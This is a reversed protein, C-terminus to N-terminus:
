IQLVRVGSLNQLGVSVSGGNLDSRKQGVAIEFLSSWRFDARSKCDLFKSKDRIKQNQWNAQQLRNRVGQLSRRIGRKRTGQM